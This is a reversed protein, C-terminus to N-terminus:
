IFSYRAGLGFQLQNLNNAPIYYLGKAEATGCNIHLYKAFGSLFWGEYLHYNIDVGGEYIPANGVNTNLNLIDNKMRINFAKGLAIYPSLVIRNNLLPYQLMVGAIVKYSQYTTKNNSLPDHLVNYYRYDYKIIRNGYGVDIYPIIYVPLQETLIYGLKIDANLFRDARIPGKFFPNNPNKKQLEESTLGSSSHNFIDDGYFDAYFSTYIHKLFTARVDCALGMTSNDQISYLRANDEKYHMTAFLASLSVSNNVRDRIDINEEALISCSLICATITIIFNLKKMKIYPVSKM